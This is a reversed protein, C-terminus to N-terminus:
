EIGGNVQQAPTPQTMIYFMPPESQSRNNEPYSTTLIGPFLERIKEMVFLNKECHDLLFALGKDTSHTQTAIIRLNDIIEENTIFVVERNNSIAFVDTPLNFCLFKPTDLFNSNSIYVHYNESLEVAKRGLITHVPAYGFQAHHSNALTYFYFHFETATILIFGASILLAPLHHLRRFPHRKAIYEMVLNLGLASTMALPITLMILRTADPLSLYGPLMGFIIANIIWFGDRTKFFRLAYALGPVLFFGSPATVIPREPIFFNGVRARYHFISLNGILNDWLPQLSGASKIQNGIFLFKTRNLFTDSHQRAYLALPIVPIGSFVILAFLGWWNRRLFRPTTMWTHIGILIMMVPVTRFSFYTNLGLGISLGSGIYFVLKKLPKQTDVALYFLWSALVLFLPALVARYGTRSFTINWALVAYIAAATVATQWKWFRGCLLYLAAATLLSAIMCPLYLSYVSVGLLRFSAAILYFYLTEKGWAEDTFPTYPEGKLIRLAYMGNWAADNNIGSPIEELRYLRLGIASLILLTLLITRLRGSRVSWSVPPPHWANPIGTVLILLGVLLLGGGAIAIRGSHLIIMAVAISSLGAIFLFSVLGPHKSLSTFLAIRSRIRRFVSFAKVLVIILAIGDILWRIASIIHDKHKSTRAFGPLPPPPAYVVIRHNMSDSIFIKDDDAIAIGTPTNMQEPGSGYAGFRSYMVGEPTYAVIKNNHPSTVFIRGKSDLAIYGEVFEKRNWDEVHITRVISGDPTLVKIRANGPDAIYAKGDPGIVIGIPDHFSSIGPSGDGWTALKKGDPSFVLVSHRSTNVIYVNDLSDIAIGRPAYFDAQVWNSEWTGTEASFKQIRHNWTDLAFLNGKSDMGASTPDLFQGPDSGRRGWVNLPQGSVSLEQFRYNRFDGILLTGQPTLTVQRPERFRGPDDGMSGFTLLQRNQVVPALGSGCGAFLVTILIIRAINRYVWNLGDVRLTTIRGQLPIWGTM